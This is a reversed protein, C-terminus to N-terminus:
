KKPIKIKQGIYILSANKIQPNVELIKPYLRAEGLFKKSISSLSDGRRVTYFVEDALVAPSPAIREEIKQWNRPPHIEEWEIFSLPDVFEGQWQVEFHLHNGTKGIFFGTNGSLAIIDGKAITDGQKVFIYSCHAYLATSDGKSIKFHKGYGNLHYKVFDVVGDFAAVLPTGKPMAWDIAPHYGLRMYSIKAGFKQTIMFDGLFPKQLTRM